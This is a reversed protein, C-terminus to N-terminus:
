NGLTIPPVPPAVNIRCISTKLSLRANAPLEINLENDDNDYRLIVGNIPTIIILKGAM